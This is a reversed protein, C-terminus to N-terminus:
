FVHHGKSKVANDKYKHNSQELKLKVKKHLSSMYKAFVEGEASRKEEGVVIDRLYSVERPNIGSVIEFPTKGINRNLYNNYAFKVHALVYELQQAQRWGLMKSTSMNMSNNYAFEVQALMEVWNCPKDGVLFRLLNGLSRNVVKTYGNTQPHFTSSFNLEIGM